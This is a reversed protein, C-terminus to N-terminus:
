YNDVSAPTTGVHYWRCVARGPREHRQQPGPTGGPLVSARLLRTSRRGRFRSDLPFFQRPIAGTQAPTAAKETVGPLRLYADVRHGKRECGWLLSLVASSVVCHTISLVSQATRSTTPARLREIAFSVLRGDTEIRARANPGATPAM